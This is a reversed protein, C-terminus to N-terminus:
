SAGSPREAVHWQGASRVALEIALLPLSCALAIDSARGNLRRLAISVATREILTLPAPEGIAAARIASAVPIAVLDEGRVTADVARRICSRCPGGPGDGWTGLGRCIRCLTVMGEPDANGVPRGVM